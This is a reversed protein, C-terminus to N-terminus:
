QSHTKPYMSRFQEITYWTPEYNVQGWKSGRPHEPYGTLDIVGIRRTFIDLDKIEVMNGTVTMGKVDWYELFFRPLQLELVLGFNKGERPIGYREAHWHESSFFVTFDNGPLYEAVTNNSRYEAATTVIARYMIVPLKSQRRTVRKGDSPRIHPPVHLDNVITAAVSPLDNVIRTAVLRDYRLADLHELFVQREVGSLFDPKDKFLDKCKVAM